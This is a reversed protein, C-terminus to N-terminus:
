KFGAWDIPTEEWVKGQLIPALEKRMLGDLMQLLERTFARIDTKPDRYTFFRTLEERRQLKLYDEVNLVRDEPNVIMVVFGGNRGERASSFSITIALGTERHLFRFVPYRWLEASGGWTTGTYDYDQAFFEGSYEAVVEAVIAFDGTLPPNVQIM